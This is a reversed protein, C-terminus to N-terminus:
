QIDKLYRPNLQHVDKLPTMTTILFAVHTLIQNPQQCAMAPTMWTAKPYADIMMKKLRNELIMPAVHVKNKEYVGLYMREGRADMWVASLPDIAFLRLSSIPYIAMPKLLGLTKVLTLALRVGTFSGPGDGVVIAHLDSMQLHHRLLFSIIKPVMWESQQRDLTEVMSDKPQGHDLLGLFLIPTSSDIVLVFSSLTM